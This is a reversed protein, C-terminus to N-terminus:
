DLMLRFDSVDNGVGVCARSDVLFSKVATM